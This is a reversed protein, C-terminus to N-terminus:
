YESILKTAITAVYKDDVEKYKMRFLKVIPCVMKPNIELSSTRLLRRIEKRITLESMM